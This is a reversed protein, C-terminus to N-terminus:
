EETAFDEFRKEKDCVSWEMENKVCHKCLPVEKELNRSLEAGGRRWESLKYIGERPLDKQFSENFKEIYMLTPCRAIKGDAITACGDSICWQAHRSNSNTSIPRNFVQKKEYAAIRYRIGFEDLREKIQSIMKHTPLYESISIAINNNYITQLVSNSLRPILLGNTYIQIFSNSFMDRVAIVYRDLEENLLPEGGLLDLRFVDSFIRKIEKLDNMRSEFDAGVSDFLPSFHTCGRCNLNCKDCIHFEGHVLIDESVSTVRLCEEELFDKMQLRKQIMDYYWYLNTFGEKKLMRCISVTNHPNLVSVIIYADRDVEDLNLIRHNNYMGSKYTDMYGLIDISYHNKLCEEARQGIECAGYIIYSM